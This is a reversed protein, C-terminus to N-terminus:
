VLLAHPRSFFVHVKRSCFCAYLRDQLCLVGRLWGESGRTRGEGKVQRNGPKANSGVQQRGGGAERERRYMGVGAMEMDFM